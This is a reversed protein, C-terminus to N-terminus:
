PASPPSAAGDTIRFVSGGVYDLFYIYGDPLVRIGSSCGAAVVRDVRGPSEADPDFWHLAGGRLFQCFLLAGQFAGLPGQDYVVAGAMGLAQYYTRLPVEVVVDPSIVPRSAWGYNGGPRLRYVRDHGVHGNDTLYLGEPGAAVGFPNRLGIAFVRPDAGPVDVFPNDPPASGDRNIRLIKGVPEGRNQAADPDEHDGVGVLLTGDNLWTLSGAIHCCLSQRRIELVTEPEVGIGNRDTYRVLKTSRAGDAGEAAYYVYVKVGNSEDPDVTVGVLGLEGEIGMGPTHLDSLTLYPEPLLVGNEIVRLLGTYQETVFVRGDSTGDLSTPSTLGTSFSEIRYGDPLPAYATPLDVTPEPAPTAQTSPPGDDDLV